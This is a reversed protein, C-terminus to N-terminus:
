KIEVILYGEEDYAGIIITSINKIMMEMDSKDVINQFIKNRIDPSVKTMYGIFPYAGGFKFTDKINEVSVAEKPLLDFVTNEYFFVTTINKIASDEPSYNTDGNNDILIWSNQTDKELDKMVLETVENLPRADFKGGYEFEILEKESLVRTFFGWIELKSNSILKTFSEGLVGSFTLKETVFSKAKENLYIKEFKM